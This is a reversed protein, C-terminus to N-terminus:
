ATENSRDQSLSASCLCRACQCEFGWIRTLKERREATDMDREDGGLYSICLEEGARIDRSAWFKWMRGNRQKTLNPECSHNWYSAAPWVGFGFCESGATGLEGGEDLSRLGFSNHTTRSQIARLLSQQVHPLLEDPLISLLSLYAEIHLNLDDANIYARPDAALDATVDVIDTDHQRVSQIVADLLFWITDPDPHLSQAQRLAKLQMKTPSPITSTSRAARILIAKDEAATWANDITEPSPKSFDEIETDWLKQKRALLKQVEERAVLAGAPMGTTWHHQCSESCFVVGRANDRIKWLVGRNYSFCQACVEKAYPKYIASAAVLSTELLLTHRPIDTLAFVGRGSTATSRVEFLSSTPRANSATPLSDSM